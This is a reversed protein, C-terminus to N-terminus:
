SKTPLECKWFNPTAGIERVIRNSECNPCPVHLPEDREIIPLIKEFHYDCDQCNYYYLPM